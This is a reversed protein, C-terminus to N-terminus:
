RIIHSLLVVVYVYCLTLDATVMFFQYSKTSLDITLSGEAQTLQLYQSSWSITTPMFKIFVPSKFPQSNGHFHPVSVELIHMIIDVGYIRLCCM